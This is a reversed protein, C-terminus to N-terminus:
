GQRLHECLWRLPAAIKWSRSAHVAALEREAWAARGMAALLMAETDQEPDHLVVGELHPIQRAIETGLVQLSAEALMMGVHGLAPTDAWNDGVQDAIFAEAGRHAHLLGSRRMRSVEPKRTNDLCEVDGFDIMQGTLTALEIECQRRYHSSRDLLDSHIISDVNEPMARATLIWFALFGRYWDALRSLRVWTQCAALRTRLTHCGELTPLAVGLHRACAGVTPLDRHMALLLLPMVLFYANGHQTFQRLASAFQNFPNRLVMIHVAEPFHHRMWGVRGVSRCFKFVPQEGREEAFGILMRLYQTLENPTTDPSAFFDDTAFRIQYGQV